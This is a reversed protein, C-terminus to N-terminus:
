DRIPVNTYLTYYDDDSTQKVVDGRENYHGEIELYVKVMDFGLEHYAALRHLGDAILYPRRLWGKNIVVPPIDEGSIILSILREVNLVSDEHWNNYKKVNEKMKDLTDYESALSELPLETFEYESDSHIGKVAYEGVCQVEILDIGSVISDSAMRINVM